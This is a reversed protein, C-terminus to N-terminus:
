DLVWMQSRGSKGNSWTIDIDLSREQGQKKLYTIRGGVEAGVQFTEVEGPNEILFVGQQWHTPDSFPGTSFAVFGKEKAQAATMGADISKTKSTSFIIDFWVVFGELVKFGQNWKLKFEKTFTLDEVKTTHLDLELFPVSDAALENKDVIRAMVEENAKELMPTMDFGYVDRWFDIHSAKLDSDALPAIRLTSHSPVMLGDPALYRDRAFLVSDLMSEYLLCYGMWESVIIDVQDVPLPVEEIKGRLCKVTDQLGNKFVNERAKNIIDSNDVAIVLKAGAKAAFMSLIGTGCGVDLVVKDQFLSKHEYIFDRYADTRIRDKIMSEHISNYSYSHFYDKDYTEAAQKESKANSTSSGAQAESVTSDDLRDLLATQVQERYAAFQSQLAELQERLQEVRDAPATAPGTSDEFVDDLSFLLADEQLVPKLYKDDEFASKSSIDPRTNGAQVESRIYNVLKVLGLFDFDFEKRLRWIDFSHNDRCYALMSKADSFTREDFLSVVTISEEDPEVDEWGEDNRTDLPDSASSSDSLDDREIHNSAM